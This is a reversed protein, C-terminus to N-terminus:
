GTDSDNQMSKERTNVNATNWHKNCRSVIMNRIPLLEFSNHYRRSIYIWPPTWRTVSNQMSFSASRIGMVRTFGTMKRRSITMDNRAALIENLVFQTPSFFVDVGWRRPYGFRSTQHNSTLSMHEKTGLSSLWFEVRSSHQISCTASSFILHSVHYEVEYEANGLRDLLEELSDLLRDMTVDSLAHYRDMTLESSLLTLVLYSFLSCGWSGLM